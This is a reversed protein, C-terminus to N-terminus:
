LLIIIYNYLLLTIFNNKNVTHNQVNSIKFKNKGKKSYYM